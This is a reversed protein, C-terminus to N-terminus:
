HGTCEFIRELIQHLNINGLYGSKQQKIAYLFLVIAHFINKKGPMVEQLAGNVIVRYHPTPLEQSQFILYRGRINQHATPPASMYHVRRFPRHDGEFAPPLLGDMFSCFVNMAVQADTPFEPTWEKGKWSGGRNWRYKGMFGDESLTFLRSIVYSTQMLQEPELEHARPAPPQSQQPPFGNGSGPAHAPHHHSTVASTGELALYRDYHRHEAILNVGPRIKSNFYPERDFSTLMEVLSVNSRSFGSTTRFIPQIYIERELLERCIGLEVLEQCNVAFASTFDQLHRGLLRRANDCLDFIPIALGLTDLVSIAQDIDPAAAYTLAAAEDRSLMRHMMTNPPNGNMQHHYEANELMLEQPM